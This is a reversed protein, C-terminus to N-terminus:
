LNARINRGNDNRTHVSLVFIEIMVRKVHFCAVDAFARKVIASGFL